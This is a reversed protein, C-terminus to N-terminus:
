LLLSLVSCYFTPQRLFCLRTGSQASSTDGPIPDDGSWANASRSGDQVFRGQQPDKVPFKGNVTIAIDGQKSAFVFNQGPNDYGALAKQYDNYNKAKALQVFTGLEYFPKEAPTDHAIWRMAMDAYESSPSEYVVPGWITYRVTDMVPEKRGRVRFLEVRLDAPTEKGDLLYKEKSEDTWDIRYWDLVDQGVNTLGWAINENFGIIVGPLGPLSVGYVNVDPTHLQVEFWISPLSLTLHPDNCLIPSGNATRQGSVAWNNSGILPAPKPISRAPLAEGIMIPAPEEAEEEIVEPPTNEFDWVVSAPIVPSQDAKWEPFLFDFQERGLHQLTNSAELDEEYTSLTEAMAKFFLASKLPSWPEPKYNLLKYEIPYDEPALDQLYANVGNTYAHILRRGEPNREWAALANEAAWLMGKRRQRKDRNLTTEGLIESLTGGASRVSIDMQWLRYKATIYGQAFIADELTGAFIHPVLRNDMRIKVPGELQPFDLQQDPPTAVPEANQWFGDFPNIMKGLPPFPLDFPQHWNCFIILLLTLVLTLFFKLLRM